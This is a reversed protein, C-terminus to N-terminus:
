LKEDGHNEEERYTIDMKKREKSSQDPDKYFAPFIAKAM